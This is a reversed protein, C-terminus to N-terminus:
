FWERDIKNVQDTTTVLTPILGEYKTKHKKFDSKFCDVLDGLQEWGKSFKKWRKTEVLYYIGDKEFVIDVERFFDVLNEDKEMWKNLWVNTAVLNRIMLNSEIIEPHKLIYARVAGERTNGKDSLWGFEEIIIREPITILLSKEKIANEM